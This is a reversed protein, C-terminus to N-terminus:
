HRANADPHFVFRPPDYRHNHELIPHLFGVDQSVIPVHVRYYYYYYYLHCVCVLLQITHSAFRACTQIHLQPNECQIDLYELLRASPLELPVCLIRTHHLTTECHVISPMLSHRYNMDFIPCYFSAVTIQLKLLCVRSLNKTHQSFQITTMTLITKQDMILTMMTLADRLVNITVIAMMMMTMIMVFVLIQTMTVNSGHIQNRM